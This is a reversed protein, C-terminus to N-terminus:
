ARAPQHEHPVVRYGYFGVVKGRGKGQTIRVTIGWSDKTANAGPDEKPPKPFGWFGVIYGTSGYHIGSAIQVRLGPSRKGTLAYTVAATRQEKRM